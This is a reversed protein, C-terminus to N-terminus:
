GSSTKRRFSSRACRRRRMPVRDGRLCSIMMSFNKPSNRLWSIAATSPNPSRVTEDWRQRAISSRCRLYTSCDNDFPSFRHTLLSHTSLMALQQMLYLFGDGVPSGTVTAHVDSLGTLTVFVA